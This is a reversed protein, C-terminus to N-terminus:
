NDEEDDLLKKSILTNYGNEVSNYYDIWYSERKLLYATTIESANFTEIISFVWDTFNSEKIAKHFKSQSKKSYFHQYWRLTFVQSTQGIYIKGTTKNEIKYIFSKVSTSYSPNLFDYSVSNPDTNAIIYKQNCSDSCFDDYTKHHVGINYFDILKFDNGCEKCVRTKYFRWKHSFSNIEEIDLLYYETKIDEKFVKEKLIKNFKKELLLKADKKSKAIVLENHIPPWSWSIENHNRTKIQCAYYREEDDIVDNDHFLTIEKEISEIYCLNYSDVLLRNNLNSNEKHSEILSNVFIVYHEIKNKLNCSFSNPHFFNESLYKFESNDEPMKFYHSIFRDIKEKLLEFSYGNKYSLCISKILNNEIFNDFNTINFISFLKNCVKNISEISYSSIIEKSTEPYVIKSKEIKIIKELDISFISCEKKDDSLFYSNPLNQKLFKDNFKIKQGVSYM